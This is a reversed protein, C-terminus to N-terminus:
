ELFSVLIYLQIAKLIAFASSAGSLNPAESTTAQSTTGSSTSVTSQPLEDEDWRIGEGYVDLVEVFAPTAFFHM